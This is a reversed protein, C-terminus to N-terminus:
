KSEGNNGSGQQKSDDDKKDGKKGKRAEGGAGGNEMAMAFLESGDGTPVRDIGRRPMTQKTLFFSFSLFLQELFLFFASPKSKTCPLLTFRTRM